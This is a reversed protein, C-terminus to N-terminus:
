LVEERSRAYEDRNGVRKARIDRGVAGRKSEPVAHESILAIHCPRRMLTDSSKTLATTNIVEVICKEPADGERCGGSPM